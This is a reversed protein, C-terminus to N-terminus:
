KASYKKELFDIGNKSVILYKHNLMEMVNLNEIPMTIVNKLNRSYLVTDKEQKELAIVVRGKLNFKKIAEAMVKTKKEPMQLSEVAVLEKDTVKGSLVMKIALRNM